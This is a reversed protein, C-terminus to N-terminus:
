PKPHKRMIRATVPLNEMKCVVADCNWDLDDDVIVRVGSWGPQASSPTLSVSFVVIELLHGLHM